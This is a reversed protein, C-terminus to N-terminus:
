ETDSETDAEFFSERRRRRSTTQHQAGWTSNKSRPGQRTTPSPCTTPTARAGHLEEIRLSGARRTELRDHAAAAQLARERDREAATKRKKPPPLKAVAKGKPDVKERVM